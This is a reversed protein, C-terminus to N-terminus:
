GERKKRARQKAALLRALQDDASQAPSSTAPATAPAVPAQAETARLPEPEPPAVTPTSSRLEPVARIDRSPTQARRKAASLRAMSEDADAPIVSGQRRGRLAALSPLYEGLRLHLRRLGIDLPLLLLALWLLPLGIERVSGVAQAPTEFISAAPPDVRGASISALERLLQPNDRTQGYEPSYSVVLGTTAAGIPQGDDGLAAVQALYVGPSETSVSARYRGAGIQSFTLPVSRNEPDILSGKLALQNLLQGQDDQATLELASQTGVTTTQLTLTGAARPPLLMDAFGAVFRPFQDWGVWERGWQGKFDSTWAVARGL